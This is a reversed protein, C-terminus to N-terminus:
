GRTGSELARNIATTLETVLVQAERADARAYWFAVQGHEESPVIALANLERAELILRPRWWGGATRARYLSSVHVTLEEDPLAIKEDRVEITGVEQVQASGSWEITLEDGDLRLMGHFRYSTSVAAFDKFVDSGTVKLRFPLIRAM